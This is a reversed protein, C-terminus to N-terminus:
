RADSGEERAPPSEEYCDAKFRQLEVPEDPGIGAKRRVIELQREVTEIGEIRPLLLAKRGDTSEVVVGFVAPDLDAPSLAPEPEELVTVSLHLRPFEDKQVASFRYDHFATAVANRWTELVLDDEMPHITGRCGRLEGDATRLTVFVGHRERLEGAARFPPTRPEGRFEAEVARRAVMPLDTFRSLINASPPPAPPAAPPDNPPEYLVAVGYGVGWPGEYSLVKHGDTHYGTAALAV